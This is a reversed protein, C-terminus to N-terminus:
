CNKTHSEIEWSEHVCSIKCVDQPGSRTALRNGHIINYQITCSSSRCTNSQTLILFAKKASFLQSVMNMLVNESCFLSGSLRQRWLYIQVPTGSGKESSCSKLSSCPETSSLQERLLPFYKSHATSRPSLVRLQMYTASSVQSFGGSNYVAPPHHLNTSALQRLRQM